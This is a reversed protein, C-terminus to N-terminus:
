LRKANHPARLIRILTRLTPRPAGAAIRESGLAGLLKWQGFLVRLAWALSREPDYINTSEAGTGNLEVIAFLGGRRIDDESAARIDFRGFDLGGAFKKALDDIARTLEPTIYEVGDAFLAGQSHNGTTGLAIHEGAGPVRSTKHVFRALFVRHQRRFRPHTEILEELTHIGDGTLVPFEKRTISYIFGSNTTDVHVGPPLAKSDKPFRVWMVGVEVPGPHYQQVMCDGHMHALAALSEADNACLTM